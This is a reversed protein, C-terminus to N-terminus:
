IQDISSTASPRDITKLSRLLQSLHGTFLKIEVGLGLPRRNKHPLALGAQHVQGPFVFPQRDFFGQEIDVVVFGGVSGDHGNQAAQGSNSLADYSPTNDCGASLGVAMILAIGIITTKQGRLITKKINILM